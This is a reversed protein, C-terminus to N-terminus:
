THSTHTSLFFSLVGSATRHSTSAMKTFNFGGGVWAVCAGAGQVGWRGVGLWPLGVGSLARVLMEDSHMRVLRPVKVKKQNKMNHLWGGRKITGQYVRKNNPPPTPHSHMSYQRQNSVRPTETHLATEENQLVCAKMIM